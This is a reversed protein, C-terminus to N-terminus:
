RLGKGKTRASVVYNKFVRETKAVFLESMQIQFVKGGNDAVSL